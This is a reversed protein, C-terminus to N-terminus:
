KSGGDNWDPLDRFQKQRSIKWMEEGQLRQLFLEASNGKGFELSPSFKPPLEELARLIEERGEGTSVISEHRWRNHQRSGINITPVGYVPAEHIGASSNGVIAQANKLLTLFFEFRMSPIVRFRPGEPLERIADLIHQAGPDNNPYIVVFRRSSQHVAAFLEDVNYAMTDLETSVPHYLLICYEDLSIDYKRRVQELEPLDESLMIDIDPSGIIFVSSPREGLQIIRRRSTENSVFHVHSLKTVAHRILEDVTGSLEGGEVHATLINNLAGVTAGALAEVRDGHVVLLDPQFERVFNGLGQVTNALVLDMRGNMLGDQNIHSYVNSFKEKYIENVTLGYRPLTHMGTAFILCDFDPSCEVKRMLPKLKGLDARTGTLFIVTRRM